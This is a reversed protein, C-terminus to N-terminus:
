RPSGGKAAGGPQVGSKSRFDNGSYYSGGSKADGGSPTGGCGALLPTVVLAAVVAALALRARLRSRM